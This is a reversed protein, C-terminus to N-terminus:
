LLKDMIKGHLVLNLADSGWNRISYYVDNGLICPDGIVSMGNGSFHYLYEIDSGNYHAIGDSMSIFLDNESRGAIHHFFKDNNVQFKSIFKNQSYLCINNDFVFYVDEDIYNMGTAGVESERQSAIKQLTSNNTLKYFELDGGSLTDFDTAYSYIYVNASDRKVGIFQSTFDARVLEKWENGDYHIVFGRWCNNVGDYFSIVGSAYIDNPSSGWLDQITIGHHDEEIDYVYFQEWKDGDYHWIGAGHELWGAGGGM